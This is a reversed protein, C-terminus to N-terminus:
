PFFTLVRGDKEEKYHAYGKDISCQVCYNRTQGKDAEEGKENEELSLYRESHVIVRECKDCRVGGLSICGRRM